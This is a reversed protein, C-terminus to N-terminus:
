RDTRRRWQKSANTKICTQHINTWMSFKVINPMSMRYRGSNWHFLLIVGWCGLLGLTWQRVNLTVQMFPTQMCTSQLLQGSARMAKSVTKYKAAGWLFFCSFCAHDNYIRQKTHCNALDLGALTELQLEQIQNWQSPQWTEDSAPGAADWRDSNPPAGSMGMEWCGAGTYIAIPFIM